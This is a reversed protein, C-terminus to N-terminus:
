KAPVANVLEGGAEKLKKAAAESCEDVKVQVARSISGAGLLKRVGLEELDVVVKNGALQAKNESTLRDVLSALQILNMTRGEDKTPAVPTFGKKGKYHMNAFEGTRILRSRKHRYRGSKGSGGQM